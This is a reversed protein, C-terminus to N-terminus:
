WAPADSAPFSEWSSEDVLDRTGEGFRLEKKHSNKEALAKGEKLFRYLFLGLGLYSFVLFGKYLSHTKM